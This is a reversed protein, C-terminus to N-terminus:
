PAEELDTDEALTTNIQATLNSIAESVQPTRLSTVLPFGALKGQM